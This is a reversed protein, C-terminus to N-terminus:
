ESRDDKFPTKAYKPIDEPESGPTENTITKKKKSKKKKSVMIVQSKTESDTTPSKKNYAGAPLGEATDDLSANIEYNLKRRPDNDADDAPLSKEKEGESGYSM